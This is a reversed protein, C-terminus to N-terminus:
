ESKNRLESAANSSFLTGDVSLPSVPEIRGSGDVHGEYALRYSVIRGSAHEWQAIWQYVERVPSSTADQYNGWGAIFSNALAPDLFDHELPRWGTTELRKRLASIAADAPYPENLKYSVTGDYQSTYHVGSASPLPTLEQPVSAGPPAQGRACGLAAFLWAAALRLTVARNYIHKM